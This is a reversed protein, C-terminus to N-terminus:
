KAGHDTALYEVIKVADADSIFDAKKGQMSKVVEMWREKTETRATTRDLGHCVGCRQEFLAKGEAAATVAPAAPAAQKPAEPKSCGAALVVLFLPVVSAIGG